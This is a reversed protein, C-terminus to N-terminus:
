TEQLLSLPSGREKEIREKLSVELEESGEQRNTPVM